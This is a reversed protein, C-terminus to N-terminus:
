AKLMISSPSDGASARSSAGGGSRCSQLPFEQKEGAQKAYSTLAVSSVSVSEEVHVFHTVPWLSCGGVRAGMGAWWRGGRSRPHPGQSMGGGMAASGITRRRWGQPLPPSALFSRQQPQTPQSARRPLIHQSPRATGPFSIQHLFHSYIRSCYASSNHKTAHIFPRSCLSPTQTFSHVVCLDFCRRFYTGVRGLETPSMM